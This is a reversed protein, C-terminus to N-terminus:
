ENLNDLGTFRWGTATRTFSYVVVEHGAANACAVTFSKANAPDPEPKATAFCKAANAEGNFVTRYRKTLQTRNRVSAMGYPMSVPFRTQGAVTVKDGKIVAASFKGWFEQISNDVQPILAAESNTLGVNVAGLGIATFILSWKILRKM